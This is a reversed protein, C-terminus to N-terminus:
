VGTDCFYTLETQGAEGALDNRLVLVSIDDRCKGTYREDLEPATRATSPMPDLEAQETSGM